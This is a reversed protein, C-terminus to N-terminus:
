HNQWNANSSNIAILSQNVTPVGSLTIISTSSRISNATINNSADTLTKNTLAQTDTTWVVSGTIGHVNSSSSMHTDIQAHTNAGINSLNLHNITKGIQM